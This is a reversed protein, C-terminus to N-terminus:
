SLCDHKKNRERWADLKARQLQMLLAHRRRALVQNIYFKREKNWRERWYKTIKAYFIRTDKKEFKEGTLKNVTEKAYDDYCGLRLFGFPKIVLKGSYDTKGSVSLESMDTEGLYEAIIEEIFDYIMKIARKNFRIKHKERPIKLDNSNCNEIKYMLDSIIESKTIEMVTPLDERKPM